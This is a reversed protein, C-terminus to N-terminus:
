SISARRARRHQSMLEAREDTRLRVIWWLWKEMETKRIKEPNWRVSLSVSESSHEERANPANGGLPRTSANLRGHPCFYETMFPPFFIGAPTPTWMRSQKKICFIDRKICFSDRERQEQLLRSKSLAEWGSPERDIIFRAPERCKWRGASLNSM